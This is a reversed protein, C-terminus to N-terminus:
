LFLKSVLHWLTSVKRHLAEHSRIFEIVFQDINAKKAFFFCIIPLFMLSFHNSIEDFIGARITSDTIKIDKVRSMRSKTRPHTSFLTFYGNDGLMSLARAMSQGGFAKASQRDCRYEIFRLIFRRLFEYFAYVVIRNFATILFNALNYVRVMLNASYNGVVPIFRMATAIWSFIHYFIKSVFNTVKQNTIILFTPLFDKNILHSMEHGIVSRLSYLFVKPDACSALYHNILGKTLVIVKSGMSSVAYANIEDSNKIYLRVNKQGFKNKVQNFIETLFDYDKMKEFPACGKLTARISFGFLFDLFLYFIMLFSVLFAAFFVAFHIKSYLGYEIVISNGSFTIFPLSLAIIPSALIMMNCVTLVFVLALSFPKSFM